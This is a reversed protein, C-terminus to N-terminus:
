KRPWGLDEHEPRVLNLPKDTPDNKHYTDINSLGWCSVFNKSDKMDFM